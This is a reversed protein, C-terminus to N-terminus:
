IDTEILATTVRKEYMELVEAYADLFRESRAGSHNGLNDLAVTLYMRALVYRRMSLASLAYFRLNDYYNATQIRSPTVEDDFFATIAAQEVNKDDRMAELKERAGDLNAKAENYLPRLIEIQEAFEQMREGLARVSRVPDTLFAQLREENYTSFDFAREIADFPEGPAEGPLVEVGRNRTLNVTKGRSTVAVEGEDVVFVASGDIAAFVEFETGRVGAVATPTGVAPEARGAIRNFRFRVAGVAVSMVTRPGEGTDIQQITYVTDPSIKVSGGNALELEASGWRTTIVSEGPRVLDGFDALVTAGSARKIKVEDFDVYVVEADQALIISALLLLFLITTLKKM